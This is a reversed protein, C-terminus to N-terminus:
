RDNTLLIRSMEDAYAKAHGPILDRCIWQWLPELAARPLRGRHVTNLTDDVLFPEVPAFFLRSPNRDPQEGTKQPPAPEPATAPAQAAPAQAAPEEVPPEAAPAAAPIEPEDPGLAQLIFDGGAVPEGRAAARELETRLLTRAAPPLERLYARLKELPQQGAM